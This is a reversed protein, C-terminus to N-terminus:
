SASARSLYGKWLTSISFAEEAEVRFGATEVMERIQEGDYAQQHMPDKLKIAWEFYKVLFSNKTYDLLMLIGEENLLRKFYLLTERPQPLHHLVSSSVVLDFKAEFHPRSQLKVKEQLSVPLQQVKQQAQRLMKEVPDYGSIHALAPYCLLLKRILAGTGCGYDLVSKGELSSPLYQIVKSLTRKTYSEWRRDYRGATKEYYAKDM